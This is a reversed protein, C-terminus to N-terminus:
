RERSQSSHQGLPSADTGWFATFGIPPEEITQLRSPCNSDEVDITVEGFEAFRGEVVAPSLTAQGSIARDFEAVLSEADSDTGFHERPVVPMTLRPSLHHFDLTEAVQRHDTATSEARHVAGMLRSLSSVDCHLNEIDAGEVFRLAHAELPLTSRHTAQAGM